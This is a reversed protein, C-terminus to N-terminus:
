NMSRHLLTTYIVVSVKKSNTFWQLEYPENFSLVVRVDEKKVLQLKIMVSSVATYTHTSVKETQSRFPLAGLIVTDDVRDYWRHLPGEILTM